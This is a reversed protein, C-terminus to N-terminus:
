VSYVKLVEDGYHNIVKVAIRGSKPKPFPRSTASYLTAWAAEDIEAKLTRKLREYPDKAGLFYAHRVFFSEEDYDTDIFWCAIDDTTSARVEGTTPDFVDVGRITVQSWHNTTLALPLDASALAEIAAIEDPRLADARDGLSSAAGSAISGAPLGAPAGPHAADRGRGALGQGSGPVPSVGGDRSTGSGGRYEGSGIGGRAASSLDTWVERGLALRKLRSLDVGGVRNIEELSGLGSLQAFREYTMVMRGSCTVLWRGGAVEIDPEGFVVFLNGAGTKKLEKMHLDQNMRAKLVVLRGLSMTEDGVHAEYAFGCVVLVDFLDIAERAALRVLDKSVTGYEPGICIAARREKGSEEYRGEAHIYKGGPWPKLETFVLTEGKKTNQVGSLKLNELVARVFDDEGAPAARTRKPRATPEEGRERAEEDLADLLAEDEADTPLVRHPSLSEVTFPGTVRVISKDEYPRDYLYETEANRAISADIEKQRARRGEWWQALLEEAKGNGKKPAPKLGAGGDAAGEIPVLSRPVQWEEWNTGCLRNIEGRLPGLTRQWKEHIVDIEANNAISKLTIHPVREYVFGRRIDGATAREALPKGTVEGEKRLGEPTDSLVYYSYRAAMLRTRALALAVRSTDITIWRRGWQEAVYATTGSGCTPDVVLDGPETTMLLCNQIITPATQVVYVLETGIQMSEWRDTVPIVPFDDVYRLLNLRKGAIICRGAASARSLGTTNTKWRQVFERGRFVFPFTPNASELAIQRCRRSRPPLSNSAFEERTLRRLEGDPLQVLDYRDLSTDGARRALYLQRIKAERHNRAYWCIYDVTRIVGESVLGGTKQFSILAVFNDKGFVEDLLSRVLHVNEDSIQVFVSGSGTLLERAAVLRDRLYALYSHIGLEWTDRFAKIVEPERSTDEIKGDKVDRAKTSAQWNSGFKIGYPPDIYIMQVRGKLKEKEALSNMVLLADGLIMRNSWNQAHRYFELKDEVAIGNFDAFLDAQPEGNTQKLRKLDDIIAKPHVKEQIYIPVTDVSLPAADQEDKGRWVLQPDLDPNRPYLKAKPTREEDAMFSQTEATPINQRKAQRHSLAEVRKTKSKGGKGGSRPVDVDKAGTL